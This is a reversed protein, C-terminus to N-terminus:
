HVHQLEHQPPKPSHTGLWAGVPDGAKDVPNGAKDVPNGAKDVPDGVEDDIGLV